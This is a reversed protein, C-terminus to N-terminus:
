HTISDLISEVRKKWTYKDKVENYANVPIYTNNILGIAINLKKILDDIDDIKVLLSNEEDTLVQNELL